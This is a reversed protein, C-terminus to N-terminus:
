SHNLPIKNAHSEPSSFNWESTAVFSKIHLTLRKSKHPNSMNKVLGEEVAQENM